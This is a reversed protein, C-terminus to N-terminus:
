EILTSTHTSINTKNGGLAVESTAVHLPTPSPPPISPPLAYDLIGEVCNPSSLGINSVFFIRMRKDPWSVKGVNRSLTFQTFFFVFFYSQCRGVCNLIMPSYQHDQLRGLQIETIESGDM